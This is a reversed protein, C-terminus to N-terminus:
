TGRAGCKKCYTRGNQMEMVRKGISSSLQELGTFIRSTKELKKLDFSCPSKADKSPKLLERAIDEASNHSVL